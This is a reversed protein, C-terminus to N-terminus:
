KEETFNNLLFNLAEEAEAGKKSLEIIEELINSHDGVGIPNHLYIEITALAKAKIADLEKVVATLCNSSIDEPVKNMFPKWSM